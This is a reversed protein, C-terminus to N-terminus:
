KEAAGSTELIKGMMVGFGIVIGISGLTSGFGETIETVVDSPNMGGVIGTLSAGIILAIFAHIKTKLVLLILVAIGIVLGLIMQGGSVDMYFGGQNNMQTFLPQSLVWIFLFAPLEDYFIFSQKKTLNLIKGIRFFILNNKM